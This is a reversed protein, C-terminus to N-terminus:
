RWLCYVVSIVVGWFPSIRDGCDATKVPSVSLRLASSNHSHPIAKGVVVTQQYIAALIQAKLAPPAGHHVRHGHVRTWGPHVLHGHQRIRYFM